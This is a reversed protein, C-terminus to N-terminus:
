LLDSSFLIELAWRTSSTLFINRILNLLALLLFLCFFFLLHQLSDLSDICIDTTFDPDFVREPKQELILPLVTGTNEANTGPIPTQLNVTQEPIYPADEFDSAKLDPLFLLDSGGPSKHETPKKIEELLEM